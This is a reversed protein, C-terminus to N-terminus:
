CYGGSGENLELNTIEFGENQWRWLDFWSAFLYGHSGYFFRLRAKPKVFVFLPWNVRVYEKTYQNTFSLHRIPLTLSYFTIFFYTGLVACIM